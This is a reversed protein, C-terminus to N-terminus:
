CITTSLAGDIVISRGCDNLNNNLKTDIPGGKNTRQYGYVMANARLFVTNYDLQECDLGEQEEIALMM